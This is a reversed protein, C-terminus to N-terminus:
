HSNVFPAPRQVKYGQVYHVGYKILADEIEQTEVKEAIVQVNLVNAVKCISEVIIQSIPNENIDSVFSGDIKVFDVSLEKLCELSAGGAGFDDLAFKCGFRRIIHIFEQATKFNSIAVTETIEFCIYPALHQYKILLETCYSIFCADSITRASLNINYLYGKLPLSHNISQHRENILKLSEKLVWKDLSVISGHKELQPIFAMPPVANGEKNLMRILIEYHEEYKGANTGIRGIKQGYLLLKNREIADQVNVLQEMEITKQIFLPDLPDALYFQNQGFEKAIDCAKHALSLYDTSRSDSPNIIVAGINVQLKFKKGNESFNEGDVLDIIEVAKRKIQSENCNPLLVCFNDQATRVLIEESGLYNVLVKSLQRVINDGATFGFSKNLIRFNELDILLLGSEEPTEVSSHIKESLLNEFLRRNALGTISDYNSLYDVFDSEFGANSLNRSIILISSDFGERVFSVFLKVLVKSGDFNIQEAFTSFSKKEDVILDLLRQRFENQRKTILIESIDQNLFTNSPYGLSNLANHNAYMITLDNPNVLYMEVSTNDELFKLQKEERLALSRQEFLLTTLKALNELATRETQSLSQSSFSIICIAGVLVGESNKLPVGICYAADNTLSDVEVYEVIDEEFRVRNCIAEARSLEDVEPNFSSKYHTQNPDFLGILVFPTNCIDSVINTIAEFEIVNKDEFGNLWNILSLNNNQLINPSIQNKIKPAFFNNM